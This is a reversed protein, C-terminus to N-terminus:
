FDEDFRFSGDSWSVTEPRTYVLNRQEFFNTQNQLTIRTMWSFPNKAHYVADHGFMASIIDACCQVYQIMEDANMGILDVHLADRTFDSAVKVADQIIAHCRDQSVEEHTERTMVRYLEGAFQVHLAEDKAILENAKSLPKLLNRRKLWYISCFASSFFIGEVCAFAIVREMLPLQDNMYEFMWQAMAGISPYHHIADYGKRKEEADKIFTDILISYTENHITEIAEQMAYFFRVEKYHSTEKKFNEVLNEVVIGDSQAFFFLVFTIFRKTNEDLSEWQDVSESFDIEAPVWFMNKQQQYFQILSHYQIPFFSYQMSHSADYPSVIREDSMGLQGGLLTTIKSM